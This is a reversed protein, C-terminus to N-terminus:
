FRGHYVQQCEDLFEGCYVDVFHFFIQQQEEVELEFLEPLLSTFVKHLEEAVKLLRKEYHYTAIGSKKFIEHLDTAIEQFEAELFAPHWSVVCEVESIRWNKDYLDIRYWPADLLVCTRLFSFQVYKVEGVRNDRQLDTYTVNLKNIKDMIEDHLTLKREEWNKKIKEKAAEIAKELLPAQADLFKQETFNRIDM